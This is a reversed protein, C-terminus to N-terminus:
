FNVFSLYSDLNKRIIESDKVFKRKLYIINKIFFFTNISYVSFLINLFSGTFNNQSQFYEHSNKLDQLQANAYVYRNAELNENVQQLQENKLDSAQELLMALSESIKTVNLMTPDAKHEILQEGMDLEQDLQKLEEILKNSNEDHYLTQSTLNFRMRQNLPEEFSKADIVDNGLEDFKSTIKSMTSHVKQNEYINVTGKKNAENRSKAIALLDIM